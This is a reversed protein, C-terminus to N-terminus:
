FELGLKEPSIVGNMRLMFMAIDSIVPLTVAKRILERDCGGNPDKEYPIESPPDTAINLVNKWDVIVSAVMDIMTVEDELRKAKAQSKMRDLEKRTMSRIMFVPHLEEPVAPVESGDPLTKKSLYPKPTYELHAESCFPLLGLLEQREESTMRYDM